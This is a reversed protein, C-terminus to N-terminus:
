KGEQTIPWKLLARVLSLRSLAYNTIPGALHERGFLKEVIKQDQFGMNKLEHVKEHLSEIDSINKELIEQGPFMGFGATFIVLRDMGATHRQLQKLSAHIQKMDEQIDESPEGFIIQYKPVISDSVFCWEQTPEILIVLDDSHGPLHLLEFRYKGTKTVLSSFDLQRVNPAPEFPGGWAVVRYDPYSYGDRVKDIGKKHIYVPLALEESLFRAGGAHDEHWHTIVVKDVAQEPALSEIFQKFEAVSAPSGSDILLGDVLYASTWFPELSAWAWRVIKDNAYKEIKFM